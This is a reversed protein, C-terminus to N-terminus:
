AAVDDWKVPFQSWTIVSLTNSEGTFYFMDYILQVFKENVEGVIYLAM